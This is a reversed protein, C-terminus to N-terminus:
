SELKAATASSRSERAGRFPLRRRVAAWLAGPLSHGRGREFVLRDWEKWWRFIAPERLPWVAVRPAASGARELLANVARRGAENAAEMCALDTHTRVYDAALFLNPIETYAHPRDALSGATNILLPELNTARSPNPYVISPDLFWRMIRADKLQRQGEVDLHALIQLWVENKIEVPDCERAPRGYLMGPADWDSIDVSLIGKVEGDGYETLDVSGWFQDQSVSTLAWPSDCYVIHGHVIPARRGLYFQIGNMWATRLRGINALSPAAAKLDDTLLTTMVEVPLAAVYYDATVDTLRGDQEISVQSIRGGNTHIRRVAAGSEFTVGLDKLHAVWPDIWMQNTPGSLVSDVDVGRTLLGLGLQMGIAGVTRTSGEEARIAVMMRTFGQGFFQRYGESRGDAKTFQWWSIHEYEALRREDCSTLWVLLRGAYFLMDIPSVVRSFGFAGQIATKWDVHNRPFRACVLLDSAGARALVTRTTPVLNDLVGRPNNGFPIRSMTDPVHRYFSPFFRFGHEGPLLKRGEVASNPVPISRAKGGFLSRSEYVRVDFGREALEHAASLGGIGGGLVAVTPRM